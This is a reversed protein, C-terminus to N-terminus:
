PEKNSAGSEHGTGSLSRAAMAPPALFTDVIAPAALLAGAAASRKLVLAVFEKRSIASDCSQSSKEPQGM